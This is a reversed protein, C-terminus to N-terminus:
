SARARPVQMVDVPLITSRPAMWWCATTTPIDAAHRRSDRGIRAPCRCAAGPSTRVGPGHDLNASVCFYPQRLDEILADGYERELLRSVKRGRTLAVFHSPTTM